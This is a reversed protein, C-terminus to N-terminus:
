SLQATAVRPILMGHNSCGFIKSFCVSCHEKHVRTFVHIETTQIVFLQFVIDVFENFVAVLIIGSIM